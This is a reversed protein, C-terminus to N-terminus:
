AERIVVIMGECLARESRYDFSLTGFPFRGVWSSHDRRLWSVVSCFSSSVQLTAALHAVFGVLISICPTSIWILSSTHSEPSYIKSM